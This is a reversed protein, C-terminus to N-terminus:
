SKSYIYYFLSNYNYAIPEESPYYHIMRFIYFFIMLIGIFIFVNELIKSKVNIFYRGILFYFAYILIIFSFPHFKLSEFFYGKIIMFLSRTIGCAPCPFGTIYNIPCVRIKLIYCIFVYICIVIVPISVKKLDNIFLTKNFKISNKIKNM